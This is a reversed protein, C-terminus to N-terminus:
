EEGEGALCDVMGCGGNLVDMHTGKQPLNRRQLAGALGHMLVWGLVKGTSPSIRAICETQWVNAWIEGDIM